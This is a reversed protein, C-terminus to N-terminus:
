RRDAESGHPCERVGTQEVYGQTHAACWRQVVEHRERAGAPVDGTMAAVSQALFPSRPGGVRGAHVFSWRLLGVISIATAWCNRRSFSFATRAVHRRSPRKCIDGTVTPRFPAPRAMM